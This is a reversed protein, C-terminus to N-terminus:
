LLRYGLNPNSPNFPMPYGHSGLGMEIKRM